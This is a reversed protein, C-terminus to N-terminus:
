GRGDFVELVLLRKGRRLVRFSLGPALLVEYQPMRTDPVNHIYAVGRTGARIRLEIEPGRHDEAFRAAVLRNITTSAFTPLQGVGEISRYWAAELPAVGRRVVLGEPAFARSLAARVLAVAPLLEPVGERLAANMAAGGGPKRYDGIAAREEASLGAAWTRYSSRLEADRARVAASALPATRRGARTAMAQAPPMWSAPPTRAGGRPQPMGDWSEGVNYAFGPDIGEPVQILGRGPVAVSRMVVRPSPEPGDLGQRALDRRSLPRVRCGCNWGNPPYHTKWWADDARLVKGDWARHQERPHRAGSHVYQWFPFVALTGPAMMQAHRGAAYAMSLNTEYIIQARWGTTGTHEWGHRAVIDRFSRRFDALTGGQELAKAVEGRIDGLLADTTAGAVSWARGHAAEWLDTWSRTPTNVKGRFFEIAERPPLDLASLTGRAGSM